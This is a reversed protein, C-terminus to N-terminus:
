DKFDELRKGESFSTLNDQSGSFENEGKPFGQLRQSNAKIAQPNGVNANLSSLLSSLETDDDGSYYERDQGCYFIQFSRPSVFAPTVSGASAPDPVTTVSSVMPFPVLESRNSAVFQQNTLLAWLIANVYSMGDSSATGNPVASFYIYATTSPTNALPSQTTGPAFYYGVKPPDLQLRAKDFEYLPKRDNSPM